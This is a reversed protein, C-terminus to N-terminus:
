TSTAWRPVRPRRAGRDRQPRAIDGAGPGLRARARDRPRARGRGARSGAAYCATGPSRSTASRGGIGDAPGWDLVEGTRADLKALSTRLEGGIVTFAAASSCRTAACRSRGSRGPAGARQFVPDITGDARLHVLNVRRQGLVQDFEGGVYFGGAGDPELALVDLDPIVDEYHLEEARATAPSRRSPRPARRRHRGPVHASGAASGVTACTAASTPPTATSSPTSRGPGAAPFPVPASGPTAGAPAACLLAAFCVFLAIRPMLACVRM